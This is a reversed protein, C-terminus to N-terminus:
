AYLRHLVTRTESDLARTPICQLMTCLVHVLAFRSEDAWLPNCNWPIRYRVAPDCHESALSAACLRLLVLGHQFCLTLVLKHVTSINLWVHVHCNLLALPQKSLLPRPVALLRLLLSVHVPCASLAADCRM